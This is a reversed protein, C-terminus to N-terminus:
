DLEQVPDSVKTIRTDDVITQYERLLGRIKQLMMSDVMREFYRYVTGRHGVPIKFLDPSRALLRKVRHDDWTCSAKGTFM